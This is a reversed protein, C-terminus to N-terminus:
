NMNGGGVPWPELHLEGNENRIKELNGYTFTGSNFHMLGHEDPCDAAVNCYGLTGESYAAGICSSKGAPSDRWKKMCDSDTAAWVSYSSAFFLVMVMLISHKM